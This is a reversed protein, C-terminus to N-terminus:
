YRQTEIKRIRQELQQIRNLQQEIRELRREINTSLMPQRAAPGLRAEIASIRGELIKLSEPQSPHGKGSVGPNSQSQASAKHQPFLSDVATNATATAGISPLGTLCLGLTGRLLLQALRKM